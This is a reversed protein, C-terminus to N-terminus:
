ATVPLEFFFRSGVNQASEVGICGGHAEVIRRSVYLGLGSGELTRAQPGRRYKDFVYSAENSTLGPGADIVSVCTSQASVELRVVVATSRPAYKLANQLLNAVVREIRLDDISMTVTSPADFFVRPRDRTAVSREIVHELFDRLETPRRGLRFTGTDIAALDLIDQVMRDLYVVNQMVRTIARVVDAPSNALKEQLLCMELSVTALPNKLDHVIQVVESERMGASSLDLDETTLKDMEVTGLAFHTDDPTSPFDM